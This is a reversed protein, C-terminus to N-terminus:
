SKRVFIKPHGYAQILGQKHRYVEVEPPSDPYQAEILIYNPSLKLSIKRGLPVDIKVEVAVDVSEIADFLAPLLHLELATLIM